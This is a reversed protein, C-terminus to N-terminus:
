AAASGAPGPRALADAAALRHLDIHPDDARGVLIEILMIARVATEALVEVVPHVLDCHPHRRQALPESSATISALKKRLRNAASYPRGTRPKAEAASAAILPWAHGPLTRSSSFRTFRATTM